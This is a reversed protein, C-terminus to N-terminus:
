YLKRIIINIIIIIIVFCYNIKIGLTEGRTYTAASDYDQSMQVESGFPAITRQNTIM